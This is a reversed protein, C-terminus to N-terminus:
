GLTLRGPRRRGAPLFWQDPRAATTTSGRVSMKAMAAPMMTKLSEPHQAPARPWSPGGMPNPSRSLSGASASSSFITGSRRRPFLGRLLRRSRLPRELRADGPDAQGVGAEIEFAEQGARAGGKLHNEVGEVLALQFAHAREEGVLDMAAEGLRDLLAVEAVGPPQDLQDGDGSRARRPRWPRACPATVTRKSLSWVSIHLVRFLADDGAIGRAPRPHVEPGERAVRARAIGSAPEDRRAAGRSRASRRASGTRRSTPRAPAQAPRSSRGARSTRSGAEKSLMVPQAKSSWPADSAASSREQSAMSRSSGALPSAARGGHSRRAVPLRDAAHRPARVAGVGAGKELGPEAGPAGGVPAAAEPEEGAIVFREEVAGARRVAGVAMREVAHRGARGRKGRAAVDVPASAPCPRSSNHTSSRTAANKRWM